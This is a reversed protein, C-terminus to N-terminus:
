GRYKRIQDKLIKLATLWEKRTIQVADPHNFTNDKVDYGIELTLTRTGFNCKSIADVKGNKHIKFYFAPSKGYTAKGILPIIM